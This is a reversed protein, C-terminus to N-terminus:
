SRRQEYKPTAQQPPTNRNMASEGDDIQAVGCIASLAYRRVYSVTSGLGQIGEKDAKVPWEGEYYQGSSHSIRTVLIINGNETIRTAQIYSLGNDAFSIRIADIVSALDAYKSKFFPNQTDKKAGEIAKQAKALATAIEKTETSTNIGSPGRTRPAPAEISLYGSTHTAAPGHYQAFEAGNITGGGAQNAANPTNNIQNM